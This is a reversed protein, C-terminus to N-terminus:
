DPERAPKIEASTIKTTSKKTAVTRKKVALASRWAALFVLVSSPALYLFTMLSVSIASGSKSAMLVICVSGALRPREINSMMFDWRSSMALAIVPWALVGGVLAM